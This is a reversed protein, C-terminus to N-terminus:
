DGTSVSRVFPNAPYNGSLVDADDKFGVPYDLDPKEVDEDIAAALSNKYVVFWNNSKEVEGVSRLLWSATLAILMDDKEDLTSVASPTATVFATPWMIGRAILNYAADPVPWFEMVNRYLTYHSPRGTALYTSDPIRKDWSRNPVRVLKRSNADDQLRVSYIDRVDSPFTLYMDDAPTSTFGTTNTYLTELEEWRHARAIRMQSLNLASTLRPEFDSQGSLIVRLETKLEALTLTGM